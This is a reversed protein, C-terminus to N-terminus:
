IEQDFHKYFQIRALPKTLGDSSNKNSVIYQLSILDRSIWDQLAFTATDLHRTRRTPQQANAMLLAGQNDEFLITAEQQDIGMEDLITRLYLIMKGAECAATFEAETM